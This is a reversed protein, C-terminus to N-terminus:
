WADMGGDVGLVQGTVYRAADSALFAVPGALDDPEGLHGLPVRALMRERREPTAFMRANMTTPFVGPSIANVRIGHPAWLRALERTLEDIAAKSAAYATIGQGTGARRAVISSLLIMWGGRAGAIMRRAAAAALEAVATVNVHMVEDFRRSDHDEAPRADTIDANAVIGDIRGFRTVCADVLADAHDPDRVDAVLHRATGGATEIARVLEVLETERRATVLVACGQGALARAMIAGLGESAGTVVAAQGDLRLTPATM